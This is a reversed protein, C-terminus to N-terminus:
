GKKERESLWYSREWAEVDGEVPTFLPHAEPREEDVGLLAWYAEVDRRELRERLIALEYRLQGTTVEIKSVSDAPAVIKSADYRYGRRVSEGHIGKLYFGIASIPDEHGKFRDLQPHNRWGRTQNLLVKQALLSERWLAGLGKWDLYGPHISWLRMKTHGPPVARNSGTRRLEPEFSLLTHTV